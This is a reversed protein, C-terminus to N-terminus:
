IANAKFLYYSVTKSGGGVVVAGCKYLVKLHECNHLYYSTIVMEKPTIGLQFLSPNVELDPIVYSRM